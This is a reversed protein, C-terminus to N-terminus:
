HLIFNLFASFCFVYLHAKFLVYLVRLIISKTQSLCQAYLHYPNYSTFAYTFVYPNRANNFGVLVIM